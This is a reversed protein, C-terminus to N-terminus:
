SSCENVIPLKYAAYAVVVTIPEPVLVVVLISAIVVAVAISDVTAIKLGEAHAFKHLACCFTIQEAVSSRCTTRATALEQQRQNKSTQRLHYLRTISQAGSNVTMLQVDAAGM